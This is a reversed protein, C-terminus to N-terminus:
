LEDQRSLTHKFCRKALQVRWLTDTYLFTCTRDTGSKCVSLGTHINIQYANGDSGLNLKIQEMYGPAQRVAASETKYEARTHAAFAPFRMTRALVATCIPKSMVSARFEMADM